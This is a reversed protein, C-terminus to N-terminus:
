LKVDDVEKYDPNIRGDGWQIFEKSGFRFPPCPEVDYYFVSKEFTEGHRDIVLFRYKTTCVADILKSFIQLKEKESDGGWNIPIIDFIKKRDAPSWYGGIVYYSCGNRFEIPLNIIYQACIVTMMKCHQTGKQALYKIINSNWDSRDNIVDDIINILFNGEYDVGNETQLVRSRQIISKQADKDWTGTVFLGGCIKEWEQRDAESGTQVCIIPYKHQNHRVLQKTFTSKGSAPAALVLMTNSKKVSSLDFHRLNFVKKEM